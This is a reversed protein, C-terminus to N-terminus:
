KKRHKQFYEEWGPTALNKIAHHRLAVLWSCDALEFYNKQSGLGYSNTDKRRRIHHLVTWIRGTSLDKPKALELEIFDEFFGFVL